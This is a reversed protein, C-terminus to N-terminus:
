KQTEWIERERKQKGYKERVDGNRMNRESKCKGYKERVKGKGM